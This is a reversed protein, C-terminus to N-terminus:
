GYIPIHSLSNFKIEGCRLGGDKAKIGYEDLCKSKSDNYKEISNSFVTELPNLSYRLGIMNSWGM